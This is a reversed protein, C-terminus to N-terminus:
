SRASCCTRRRGAPDVSGKEIQTMQGIKEDTTMQALLAEARVEPPLTPDHWDVAATTPTPSSPPAPSQETTGCAGAFLGAIVIAVVVRSMVPPRRAVVIPNGPVGRRM